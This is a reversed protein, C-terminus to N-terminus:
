YRSVVTFAGPALLRICVFANDLYVCVRVYGHHRHSCKSITHFTFSIVAGAVISTKGGLTGLEKMSCKVRELHDGVRPKEGFMEWLIERAGNDHYFHDVSRNANSALEPPSKHTGPEMTWWGEISWLLIRIRSLLGSMDSETLRGSRLCVYFDSSM